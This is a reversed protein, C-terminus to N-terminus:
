IFVKANEFAPKGFKDDYNNSSSFSDESKRRKWHEEGDYPIDILPSRVTSTTHEHLTEESQDDLALQDILLNQLTKSGSDEEAPSEEADM